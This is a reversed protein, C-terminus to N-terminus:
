ESKIEMENNEVKVVVKMVLYLYVNNWLLRNKYHKKQFFINLFIESTRKNM